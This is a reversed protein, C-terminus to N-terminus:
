RRILVTVHDFPIELRHNPISYKVLRIRLIPCRHSGVRGGRWHEFLFSPPGM